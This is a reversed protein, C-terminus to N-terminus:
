DEFNDPMAVNLELIAQDGSQDLQVTVSDQDIAVYKAIVAIIEKQLKSLFDPRQQEKREHSIIIQLREKAISASPKSRRFYKLLSM